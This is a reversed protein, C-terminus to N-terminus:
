RPQARSLAALLVAVLNVVLLAQWLSHMLVLASREIPSDFGVSPFWFISTM